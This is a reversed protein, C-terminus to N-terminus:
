LKKGSINTKVQPLEMKSKSPRLTMGGGITDQDLTKSKFQSTPLHSGVRGQYRDLKGDCSMCFWNKRGILADEDGKGGSVLNFIYTIKNEIFSLMKKVTGIDAKEGM